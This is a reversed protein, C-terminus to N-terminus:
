NLLWALVHSGESRWIGSCLLGPQLMVMWLCSCDPKVCSSVNGMAVRPALFGPLSFESADTWLAYFIYEYGALSEVCLLCAYYAANVSCPELSGIGNKKGEWTACIPYPGRGHLCSFVFQMSESIRRDTEPRM